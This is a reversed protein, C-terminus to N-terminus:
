ATFFHPVFRSTNGTVWGDSERIGMGAAEQGIIWSGIVPRVGDFVQIPALQQFVFGESGYNGHGELHDQMTHVTVNAGERSFLPKKVWEFMDRPEDFYAPVLYPSDPFLEWLIPLIGKNSLIMKWPPEIFMTDSQTVFEGFQESLMWEWPYLKFLTAIKEDNGGRFERDTANWGIDAISVLRTGFGAHSATDALYGVTMGDERDDMAAFHVIHGEPGPTPLYPGFSRWLEVLREHISNFQDKGAFVDHLWDWQIVAAELLSTPTDANYELMKPPSVGDYALDFRGFVSPPEEKWSREILPVAAEPIRLEAYRKEDIVHQVAELCRAHLDNTAREIREIEDADFTYYTGEAWYPIEDPTHWSLGRAEVKKQWDLRPSCSLRKM